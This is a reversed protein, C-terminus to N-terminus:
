IEILLKLSIYVKWGIFGIEVKDDYFLKNNGQKM